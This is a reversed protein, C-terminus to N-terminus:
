VPYTSLSQALKYIDGAGLIALVINSRANKKVYNGIENQGIYQVFDRNITKVLKQSNVKKKINENERGEVSYIDTIIIKEIGFEKKAQQFTKVFDNFLYFTRQYQHPQFVVWKTQKPYKENLAQLTAKIETPHHAYDSIVKLKLNKIKLNSKEFRRWVGKYESLAKLATKDSVGLLQAAILAALANSVNHEGPVKLIKKIKQANKDQLSYYIVKPKSNQVKFQKLVEVVNKDDHNAVVCNKVQSIYQKFIKFIHNLNQFWDMHEEEINTLVLIDPHYHLFKAQYDDAEIVLYKSRGLRWGPKTGIIFTPDFGAKTLIQSIMSATTSKGHMGSVAITFYDRSLEALAMAGSLCRIKLRRAEKLELNNKPVAESYVALDVSKAVNAAKHGISVKIGQKKLEDTIESKEADSGSVINGKQKYISAIGSIGIGGIGIFHIKM